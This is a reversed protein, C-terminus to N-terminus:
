QGPRLLSLSGEAQEKAKPLDKSMLYLTGLELRADNLTPDLEVSKLFEAYAQRIQSSKLYSVGLKYHAQPNEPDAQLVNQYEIIAEKFKNETFYKEGKRWHREKKAEQSCGSLGMVSLSVLIILVVRLGKRCSCKM